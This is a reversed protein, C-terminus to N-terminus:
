RLRILQAVIPLHDSGTSAETVTRASQASFHDNYFIHDIRYLPRLPIPAGNIHSRSPFTFAFGWGAEWHANDLYQDILRYSNTQDTINFDGGVILPGDVTEIERVLQQIHEQPITPPPHVNFLTVPGDPTEVRVKQLRGAEYSQGLPTLPYRSVVAQSFPRPYNNEDVWEFYFEGEPYLQRLQDILPGALKPKLEQLLLIDPQEQQVVEVIAEAEDNQYYLNYSMVKLPTGSALVTRSGPLFLPIYTLFLFLMPTALTLALWKRRAFAAAITGPLLIVLFWPVMYSILRIVLLQDGPWWRFIYWLWIIIGFLWLVLWATRSLFRKLRSVPKVTVTM